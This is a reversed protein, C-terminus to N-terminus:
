WAVRAFWVFPSCGPHVVLSKEGHSGVVGAAVGAADLADCYLALGVNVDAEASLINCVACHNKEPNETFALELADVCAKCVNHGCKRYVMPLSDSPVSLGRFADGCSPCFLMRDRERVSTGLVHTERPQHDTNTALEDFRFAVPALFCLFHSVLCARPAVGHLVLALASYAEHAVHSM